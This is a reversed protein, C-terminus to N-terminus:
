AARLAGMSDFDPTDENSDAQPLTTGNWNYLENGGADTLVGYSILPDGNTVSVTTYMRCNQVDVNSSTTDGLTAFFRVDDYRTVNLFLGDTVDPGSVGTIDLLLNGITHVDEFHVDTSSRHIRLGTAQYAGDAQPANIVSNYCIFRDIAQFRTTHVGSGGGIQRDGMVVANAYIHDEFTRGTGQYFIAYSDVSGTDLSKWTCNVSAFRYVGRGSGGGNFGNLRTGDGNCDVEIFVDDFLVDQCHEITLRSLTGTINGGTLRIRQAATASTNGVVVDGAIDVDDNMIVDVDDGNITIGSYSGAQVTIKYGNLQAYTNFDASNSVTVENTTVPDAPTNYAFAPTTIGSLAASIRAANTSASSGFVVADQAQPTGSAIIERIASGLVDSDADQLVGAGIVPAVGSGSVMAPGSKVQTIPRIRAM